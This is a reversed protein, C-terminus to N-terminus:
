ENAFRAELVGELISFLRSKNIGLYNANLFLYISSVVNNWM